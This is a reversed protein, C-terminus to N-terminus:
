IRLAYGRRHVSTVAAGPRGLRRRLRGIAVEVAHPDGDGRGWVAQLLETKTFVINPRAVLTALMRAEIDSLVVDETGVTAHTGALTVTVGCM